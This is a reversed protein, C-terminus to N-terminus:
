APGAPVYIQMGWKVTNRFRDLMGAFEGHRRALLARVTNDDPHITALRLPLVPGGTAAACAIVQHHARGVREINDLGGLTSALAHEGFVRADVSGVVASLGAETVPRVSEGGVGTLGDLQRPSLADTIAYVWIVQDEAPGLLWGARRRGPRTAPPRRTMLTLVMESRRPPWGRSGARACAPLSGRRGAGSVRPVMAPRRRAGRAPVGTGQGSLLMRPVIERHAGLRAASPGPHRDFWPTIVSGYDAAKGSVAPHETPARRALVARGDRPGPPGPRTCADPTGTFRFVAYRKDAAQRCAAAVRRPPDPSAAGGSLGAGGRSGAGTGAGARGGDPQVARVPRGPPAPGPPRRAPNQPAPRGLGTGPRDARGAAYHEEPHGAPRAPRGPG